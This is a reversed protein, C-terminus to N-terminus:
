QPRGAIARDLSDRMAMAADLPLCIMGATEGGADAFLLAVYGDDTRICEALTVTETDTDTDATM